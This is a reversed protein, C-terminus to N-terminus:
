SPGEPASAQRLGRRMGDHADRVAELGRSLYRKAVEPSRAEATVRLKPETGSPRVLIWGEKLAVRVGDLRSVNGESALAQAVAEMILSKAENPIPISAREIPYHPLKEVMARLGGEKAVLAAVVAAAFPGDPCLTWPKGNWSPFIWAGSPEGGWGAGTAGIAESIYADGVRTREIAVGPLADDVALSTDVPVVIRKAGSARALLVALEDGTVATGDERLAVLRDADGDHALGVDAGTARVLASANALNEASPESPRGPFTGDLQANMTVVECGMRRLLSPTALAGVGNGTDLVVRLRRPARGVVQLIAEVYRECLDPDIEQAALADWAPLEEAGHPRELRRQIDFRAQKDFARGDPDWLKFGNDSAPNHSATIVLAADHARGAWALAPTPAMGGLTAKAGVSLLGAIAAAELAPGSKRADRGVLVRRRASGVARGIAYALDV